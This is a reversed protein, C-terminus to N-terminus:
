RAGTNMLLTRFTLFFIKCDTIFNKKEIYELDYKLKESYLDFDAIYGVKVQALGTIGPLVSHRKHFKNGYKEVLSEVFHPQEPRPGILSMEGKFINIFQPLEDLRFLRLFRGFRTIRSDNVQTFDKGPNGVSKMSRFKYLQFLKSDKGVRDQIFFIKEKPSDIKLGIAIFFGLVLLLPIVAFAFLFDLIYKINDYKM